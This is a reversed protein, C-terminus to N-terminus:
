PSGWMSLDPTLDPTIRSFHGFMLMQLSTEQLLRQIELFAQSM